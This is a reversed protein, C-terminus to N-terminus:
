RQAVAAEAAVAHGPGPRYRPIGDQDPNHARPTTLMVTGLKMAESFLVAKHEALSHTARQDRREFPVLRYQTAWNCETRLRGEVRARNEFLM